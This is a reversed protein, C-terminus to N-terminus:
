RFEKGKIFNYAFSPISFVFLIIAEVPRAIDIALLMIVMEVIFWALGLTLWTIGCYRKYPKEQETGKYQKPINQIGCLGLVGYIIWFVSLIMLM